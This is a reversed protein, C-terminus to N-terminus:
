IHENIFESRFGLLPCAFRNFENTATGFTLVYIQRLDRRTLLPLSAKYNLEFPNRVRDNLRRFIWNPTACASASEFRAIAFYRKLASITSQTRDMRRMTSM